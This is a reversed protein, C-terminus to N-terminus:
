SPKAHEKAGPLYRMEDNIRPCFAEWYKVATMDSIGLTRVLVKPSRLGARFFSALATTYLQKAQVGQVKLVYQVGAETFPRGPMQGPFVYDEAGLPAQRETEVKQVHRVLREAIASDLEIPLAGFRATVTGSESIDFLGRRLSCAQRATRAYVLMLLGLLANRDQDAPAHLWRQTLEASREPSLLDDFPFSSAESRDIHLPQFLIERRNLFDVFAHLANRHGPLAVVFKALSGSDIGQPSLVDPDLTELFRKAARLLMTVTGDKLRDHEGAWGRSRWARQQVFLHRQFRELLALKWAIDVRELLREQTRAQTHREALIGPVPPAHGRKLLWAYPVRQRRLGETSIREVLRQATITAPSSFSEGLAVFFRAYRRLRSKSHGTLAQSTPWEAAFDQFCQRAWGPPVELALLKAEVGLARALYCPLCEVASHRQGVQACRPCVFPEPKQCRACIPRGLASHAVVKRHKRCISCTKRELHACNTCVKELIGAAANIEFHRNERGCCACVQPPEYFRRCYACAKGGPVAFSNRRVPKACRICGEKIQTKARCQKCFAPELGLHSRTAAGCTTCSVAVFERLYCAHCVPGSAIRVRTRDILRRCLACHESM